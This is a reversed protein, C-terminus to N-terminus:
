EKSERLEKVLQKATDKHYSVAVLGDQIAYYIEEINEVEATYKRSSNENEFTIKM